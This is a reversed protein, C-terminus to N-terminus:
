SGSSSFITNAVCGLVLIQREQETSPSLKIDLPDLEKGLLNYFAIMM